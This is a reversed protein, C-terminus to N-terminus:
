ESKRGYFGILFESDKPSLDFKFVAEQVLKHVPQAADDQLNGSIWRISRRLDEGDPLLEHM